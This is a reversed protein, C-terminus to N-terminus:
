GFSKIRKRFYNRGEPTILTQNGTYGNENSYEKIQFLNPVYQSMPKIKKKKDRYIYGQDILKNIFQREKVKLEKATDRFNLLLNTDVIDDFYEAKDELVENVQQLREVEKEVALRMQREEKLKTATAILLDPNGLLEDIAYMGHRRISPLIDATVWKKFVKAREQIETNNGQKAAGFILSYLGSENIFKKKQKRGLKDIVEHDALDDEDVHNKVADYPNSFGLAEAAEKAGFWEVGDVIIIPLEGFMQHNFVQLQNMKM